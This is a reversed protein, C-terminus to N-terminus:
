NIAPAGPVLSCSQDRAAGLCTWPMQHKTHLVMHSGYGPGWVWASSSHSDCHLAMCPGAQNMWSCGGHATCVAPHVMGAKGVAVAPAAGAHGHVHACLATVLAQPMASNPLIGRPLGQARFLGLGGGGLLVSNHCMCGGPSVVSCSARQEMMQHTEAEPEAYPAHAPLLRM